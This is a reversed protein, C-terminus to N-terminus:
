PIIDMYRFPHNALVSPLSSQDIDECNWSDSGVPHCDTQRNAIYVDRLWDVDRRLENQHGHIGSWKFTVIDVPSAYGFHWIRKDTPLTVTEGSQKPFIVREPYAPDHAFGRHFSRWLHTFPLRLRKCGIRLGYEIAEKAMGDSYVEDSDAVVIVDANPAYQNISDRQQGEYTWLGDVWRTKSGAANYAIAKLDDRKDPCVANTAGGHSPKLAYLFWMEDVSDIISRIAADMYSKGYLLAMYGIINTM